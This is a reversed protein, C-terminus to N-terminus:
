HVLLNRTLLDPDADSFMFVYYEFLFIIKIDIEDYHFIEPWFGGMDLLYIYIDAEAYM